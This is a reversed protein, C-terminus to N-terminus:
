PLVALPKNTDIDIGVADFGTLVLETVIYLEM